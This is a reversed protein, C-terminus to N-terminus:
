AVKRREADVEQERLKTREILRSAYDNIQTRSSMQAGAALFAFIFKMFSLEREFLCGVGRERTEYVQTLDTMISQLECNNYTSHQRRVFDIYAAGLWTGHESPTMGEPVPGPNWYCYGIGKPKNLTVFPLSAIHDPPYAPITQSTTEVLRAASREAIIREAM